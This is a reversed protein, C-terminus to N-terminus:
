ACRARTPMVRHDRRADAFPSLPEQRAVWHAAVPSRERDDLAVTLENDTM